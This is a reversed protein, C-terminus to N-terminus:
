RCKISMDVKAPVPLANALENGIAKGLCDCYRKQQGEMQDSAAADADIDLYKGLADGRQAMVGQACELKDCACMADASKTVVALLQAGAITVADHCQTMRALAAAERAGNAARLDAGYKGDLKVLGLKWAGVCATTACACVETAAAELDRALDKTGARWCTDFAGHAAQVAPPAEDVGGHATEVEQLEAHVRDLCGADKCACGAQARETYAGAWEPDREVTDHSRAGGCAVLAIFWWRVMDHITATAERVDETTTPM